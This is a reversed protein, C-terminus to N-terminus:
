RIGMMDETMVDNVVVALMNRNDKYPLDQECPKRWQSVPNYWRDADDFMTHLEVPLNQCAFSVKHQM